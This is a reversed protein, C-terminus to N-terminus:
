EGYGIAPGTVGDFGLSWLMELEVVKSVGEAILTLGISHTITVLGQLFFQQVQDSDVNRIFASDVKLYDLGVDHLKGIKDAMHGAHEIGLHCGLAKLEGAFQKFEELYHYVGREPFEFWLRGAHEAHAQLQKVFSERAAKDALLQTSLNIGVDNPQKNLSDCALALAELDLKTMLHARHAWDLFLGAPILNEDDMRLRIPAEFHLLEDNSTIVPYLSLQFKNQSFATDFVREWEALENPLNNEDQDLYKIGDAASMDEQELKDLLAVFNERPKYYGVVCSLIDEAIEADDIIKKMSAFADDVFQEYSQSGPLLVSFKSGDLRGVMADGPKSELEKLFYSVDGILKDIVKRGYIANFEQLDLLSFVVVSGVSSNDDRAAYAQAQSIFAERRLLGTDTDCASQMLRSQIRDSEDKLLNRVNDSLRNLSSVLVKLEATAPESIKVFRREGIAKAQAVVDGLPKLVKKLSLHSVLGGVMAVAFFYALLQLSGRWMQDYAFNWNSQVTVYGIQRWGDNVYATGAAPNINILAKFWNPAVSSETSINKEIIAGGQPASLVISQFFGSDFQSTIQLEATVPNFTQSGLILALNNASDNNKEYLQAELYLKTSYTTIVYTGGLCIGIVALIVLWLQKSFSM